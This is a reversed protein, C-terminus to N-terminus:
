CPKDVLGNEELTEEFYDFYKDIIEENNSVLRAYTIAEAKRLTVENHRRIWLGRSLQLLM